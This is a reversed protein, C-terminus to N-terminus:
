YSFNYDEVNSIFARITQVGVYYNIVAKEEIELMSPTGRIFLDDICKVGQISDYTHKVVVEEDNAVDVFYMKRTTIQFYSLVEDKIMNCYGCEESYFYILYNNEEVNFIDKWAIVPLSLSSYDPEEEKEITPEQNTKSCSVLVMVSLLLIRKM